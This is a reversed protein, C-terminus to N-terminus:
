ALVLQLAQVEPGYLAVAWNLTRMPQNVKVFELQVEM